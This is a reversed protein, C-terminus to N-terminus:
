GYKARSLGHLRSLEKPGLDVGFFGDFNDEKAGEGFDGIYRELAAKTCGTIERIEAVTKGQAHLALAMHQKGKSIRRPESVYRYARVIFRTPPESKKLKKLSLGVRATKIIKHDRMEDLWVLRLPSDPDWCARGNIADDLTAVDLAETRSLLHDVCLSPGDILPGGIQEIGRVLVGGFSGPGGFTLDHGKFSGGRYVGSTRHFYWKALDKQIPDRHTFVDLHGDGHYYFEIETYRHPESGVMVTTGCLLRQAIADFWAAFDADSNLGAPELLLERWRSESM